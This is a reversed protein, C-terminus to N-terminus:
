ALFRYENAHRYVDGPRLIVSPFHSVNPANPFGQPELAFGSSQRLLGDRSAVSGNLTNGTYFQLGPQSTWLELGLSRDPATVRAALRLGHSDTDPLVFYHDYGHGFALQQNVIRIREAATRPTRFDFPTGEVSWIEGTPIQSRDTPLFRDAFIIFEHELIDSRAPNVFTFYPHASLNIPTPADTRAEFSLSLTRGSVRYTARVMVKGPFGQDGDSSVYDLVAENLSASAVSWLEKAFGREGGHLTNPGENKSLSYTKGDLVFAGNAIRNATRGLLAGFSGQATAYAHVDNFGLTVQRPSGQAPEVELSVLRGGYDTISARMPGDGLSLLVAGRGDPLRGFSSERDTM